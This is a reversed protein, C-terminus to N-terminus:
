GHHTRASADPGAARHAECCYASGDPGPLADSQPLHLGCHSCRVMLGHAPTGAPTSPTSPHQAPQEPPRPRWLRRVAPSYWLWVLLVVLLLYKLM